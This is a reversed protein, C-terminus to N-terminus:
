VHIGGSARIKTADGWGGGRYDLRGLTGFVHLAMGALVEGDGMRLSATCPDLPLHAALGGPM